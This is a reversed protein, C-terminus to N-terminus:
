TRPRKPRPSLRPRRPPPQSASSRAIPLAAPTQAVVEYYYTTGPQLGTLPASVAVASTGSGISQAPTTTGSTLTSNTGYDFSVSTASGDPNVGGNLTATTATLDSTPQVIATPPVIAQDIINLANTAGM